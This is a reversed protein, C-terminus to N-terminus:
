LAARSIGLMAYNVALFGDARTTVAEPMVRNVEDAMVGFQRNLGCEDRFEPKYDFLYLGFGLPHTGVRVVNEKIAPDSGTSKTMNAASDSATGGTGQTLHHVKGYIQLKPKHYQSKPTHTDDKSTNSLQDRSGM